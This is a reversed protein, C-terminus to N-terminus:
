SQRAGRRRLHPPADAEHRLLRHQETRARALVDAIPTGAGRVGLDLVGRARGRGILEDATQRLAVVGEEALTARPERAALALADRDRPRDELVRRDQQEVLGGTREVRFALAGHLLRELRQHRGAGGDDDRVPQGGHQLGVADDHQVVSADDRGAPM